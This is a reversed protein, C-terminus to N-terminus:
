DFLSIQTGLITEFNNLEDVSILSAGMKELELSGASGDRFCFVPTWGRKLNSFTGSWTGGHGLTCRAVFTRLGMCHILRNRSLARAASFPLEYGEESIYLINEGCPQRTLQDAVVSIVSGGAELCSDQATRDAGRANGSVLVYGQRAAQRGVAKAFAAHEAELERSGVLAVKPRSLLSLDGKMWLCGPAEGGLLNRVAMPYYEGVRSVATCGAAEGGQLYRELLADEELLQLIRLAQEDRYGLDKLDQLELERDLNEWSVAAMRMTLTRLQAATLPRRSPDGLHSTLLLFGKERSNM